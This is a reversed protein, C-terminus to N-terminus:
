NSTPAIKGAEIMTKAQSDLFIGGGRIKSMEVGERHGDGM